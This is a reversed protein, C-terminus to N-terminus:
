SSSENDAVKDKLDCIDIMRQIQPPPGFHYKLQGTFIVDALPPFMRQTAHLSCNLTM